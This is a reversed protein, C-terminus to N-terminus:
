REPDNLAAILSLAWTFLFSLTAIIGLIIIITKM